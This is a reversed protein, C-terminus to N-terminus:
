QRVKNREPTLAATGADSQLFSAIMCTRDTPEIYSQNNQVTASSWRIAHHTKKQACSTWLGSMLAGDEMEGYSMIFSNPPEKLSNSSGQPKLAEHQMGLVMDRLTDQM